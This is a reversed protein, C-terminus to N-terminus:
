LEITIFKDLAEKPLPKSYLYGQVEDCGFQRLWALQEDKEVGEAIVTLSLSHGLMIISRAISADNTDTTLNRVFSQDVKLKNIPFRKLYSLSSFGTGFDDISLQVGLLKLENMTAIHKEADQMFLSETIELELCYAPLGTSALTTAVVSVFNPHQFQRASINVAMVFPNAGRDIIERAQRCATHLVWTGIPIILGSAEALPIFEAPSVMGTGSRNWRILAEAGIVRQHQIDIQPQYHLVLENGDLARRLDNEMALWHEAMENMGQTYCQFGNGGSNSIRNVAAEANRLLAEPTRGDLPYASAGISLTLFYEQHEAILPAIMGQQLHEAMVFLPNNDQMDELLIGFTAGEFRFLFPKQTDPFHEQLMEQLRLALAQLMSDIADHGRSELVMSIRDVRMLMLALKSRGDAQQIALQLHEHLMRRNPLGTLHDHYAQHLLREEAQKRKTIDTIYIHSIQLDKLMHIVCNMIRDKVPYEMEQFAIGATHMNVVRKQFGSPLLQMPNNLALQQLLTLTAPNSYVINGDWTARLIPSPNREPFMALRRREINETLYANVQFGIFISIISIVLSFGIVLQIMNDTRTQANQGSMFVQRQNMRVLEDIAPSIRGETASVRALIERANDWDVPHSNLTHDLQEALHNIQDAYESIQKLLSSDENLTHITHFHADIERQTLEFDHMFKERDTSAYYEYLIPKQAFIAARLKAINEVRPLNDNILDYIATSVYHGNSYILASLAVGLTLILLYIALIKRFIASM